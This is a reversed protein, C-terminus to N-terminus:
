GEEPPPTYQALKVTCPKWVVVRLVVLYPYAEELRRKSFQELEEDSRSTM